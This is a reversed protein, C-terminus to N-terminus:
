GVLDGVREGHESEFDLGGVGGEGVQGVDAARADGSGLAVGGGVFECDAFDREAVVGEGDDGACGVDFRAAKDGDDCGSVFGGVSGGEGGALQLADLALAHHERFFLQGEAEVM